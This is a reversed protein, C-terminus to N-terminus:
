DNSDVPMFVQHAFIRIQDIDLGKLQDLYDSYDNGGNVIFSKLRENVIVESSTQELKVPSRKILMERVIELRDVDIEGDALRSIESFIVKNIQAKDSKKIDTSISIYGSEGYVSHGADVYYSDGSEDRLKQTLVGFMYNGLYETLLDIACLSDLGAIASTYIYGVSLREGHEIEASAFSSVAELVKDNSTSDVNISPISAMGQQFDRLSVGGSALVIVPLSKIRAFQEDVDKDTFSELNKINGYNPIDSVELGFLKRYLESYIYRGPNSSLVAMESRIANKEIEITESSYRPSYLMEILLGIAFGFDESMPIGIHLRTHDLSTHANVYLGRKAIEAKLKQLSDYKATERCIMHEILHSIGFKETSEHVTGAPIIVSLYIPSNPREHYYSSIQNNKAQIFKM